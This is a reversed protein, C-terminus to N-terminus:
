PQVSDIVLEIGSAGVATPAAQGQLDGPQPMANGSKSIRAGVVVMPFNSLKMQPSMAMSDDLKFTLPLDKVQKRLIALPM